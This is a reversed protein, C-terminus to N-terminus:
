NSNLKPSSKRARVPKSRREDFAIEVSADPLDLAARAERVKDRFCAGARRQDADDSIAIEKPSAPGSGLSATLQREV